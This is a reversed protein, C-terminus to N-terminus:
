ELLPPPTRFPGGGVLTEGTVEVFTLVLGLVNQSKTEVRKGCKHLIELGYRTGTGIISNSALADMLFIQKKTLGKLISTIINETM